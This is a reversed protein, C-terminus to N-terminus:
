QMMLCHMPIHASEECGKVIAYVFFSHVPLSLDFNLGRAKSSVDTHPNLSTKHEYAM